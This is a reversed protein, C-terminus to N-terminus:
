KAPILDAQLTGKSLRFDKLRVRKDEVEFVPEFSEGALLSAAIKARIDDTDVPVTEIREQYMKKALMKAILTINVAGVKVKAVNLNLLGADDLQPEMEVTIVLNAKEIDATGMLVIRGPHFLVEPASFVVGGTERPWRLRGIAENLTQDLVTLTFPRQSQAGNYLQPGLEHSLYPHVRESNTGSIERVAPRYRAPRYLLLALVVVAVTLDILLWYFLKRHKPRKKPRKEPVPAADHTQPGTTNNALTM